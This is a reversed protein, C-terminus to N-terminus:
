NVEVTASIEMCYMGNLPGAVVLQFTKGAFDNIGQFTQGDGFNAFPHCLHYLGRMRGRDCLSVVEAVGVADMYLAGDPGNPTQTLGAMPVSGTAAGVTKSFDGQKMVQISAGGGGYTRAMYHGPHNSITVGLNAIQDLAVTTASTGAINEVAQGIIICRYADAAGKLSFVDGFILGGNYANTADGNNIFLYFTYSDAFM